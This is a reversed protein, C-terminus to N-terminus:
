TSLCACRLSLFSLLSSLFGVWLGIFACGTQLLRGAGERQVAPDRKQVWSWCLARMLRDWVGRDLDTFSSGEAIFSVKDRVKVGSSLM